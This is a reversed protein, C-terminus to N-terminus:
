MDKINEIENYKKRGLFIALPSVTLLLTWDCQILCLPPFFAPFSIKANSIGRSGVQVSVTPAKQNELTIHTLSINSDARNWGHRRDTSYYGDFLFQMFIMTHGLFVALKLFVNIDYKQISPLIWKQGKKGWVAFFSPSLLLEWLM